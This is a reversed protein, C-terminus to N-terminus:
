PTTFSENSLETTFAKEYIRTSHEVCHYIVQYTGPIHFPHELLYVKVEM